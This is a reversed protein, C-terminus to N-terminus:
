SELSDPGPELRGKVVLLLSALSYMYLAFNGFVSHAFTYEM